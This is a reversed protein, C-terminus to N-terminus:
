PGARGQEEHKNPRANNSRCAHPHVGYETSVCMIRVAAVTDPPLPPSRVSISASAARVFLCASPVIAAWRIADFSDKDNLEQRSLPQLLVAYTHVPM